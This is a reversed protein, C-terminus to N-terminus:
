GGGTPPRRRFLLGLVAFPRWLFARWWTPGPAGQHFLMEILFAHQQGNRRVEEQVARVLLHSEEATLPRSATVRALPDLSAALAESRRAADWGTAVIADLIARDM